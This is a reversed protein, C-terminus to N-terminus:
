YPVIIPLRKSPAPVWRPATLPPIKFSPLHFPQTAYGRVVEVDSRVNYRYTILGAGEFHYVISGWTGPLTFYGNNFFSPEMSAVTYGGTNSM